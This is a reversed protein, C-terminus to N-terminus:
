AHLLEKNMDVLLEAPVLGTLCSALHRTAEVFHRFSVHPVGRNRCFEVLKGKALVLDAEISACFDSRGDGVLVRLDSGRGLVACKCTGAKASCAGHAAPSSLRWRRGGTHELHNAYVPLDFGHRAFVRRIVRDLGDSVVVVPVDHADCLELFDIFGSDVEIRDAFADLEAPSVDLLAVQREMCERSGIHGAVWAEEVTEWAPHAFAQLVLDTTDEVSITGDFDVFVRTGIHM